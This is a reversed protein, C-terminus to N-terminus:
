LSRKIKRGIYRYVKKKYEIYANGFLEELEKEELKIRYHFNIIFIILSLLTIWTPIILSFSITFIHMGLYIPNRSISYIGTRILKISQSKDALELKTSKNLNFIAITFIITGIITGISGIIKIFELNLIEIPLFLNFALIPNFIYIITLFCIYIYGLICIIIFLYAWHPIEPFNIAREIKSSVKKYVLNIFVFVM